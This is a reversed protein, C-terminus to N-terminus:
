YLKLARRLRRRLIFYLYTIRLLSAGLYILSLPLAVDPNFLSEADIDDGAATGSISEIAEAAFPVGSLCLLIFMLVCLGLAYLLIGDMVTRRKLKKEPIKPDFKRDSASTVFLVTLYLVLSFFLISVSCLSKIYGDYTLDGAVTVSADAAAYLLASLVSFSLVSTLKAATVGSATPPIPYDPKKKLDDLMKKVSVASTVTFLALISIYLCAFAATTASPMFLVSLVAAALCLVFVAAAFAYPKIYVRLERPLVKCFGSPRKVASARKKQKKSQNMRKETRGLAEAPSTEVRM